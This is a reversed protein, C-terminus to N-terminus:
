HPLSKWYIQPDALFTSQFAGLLIPKKWSAPPAFTYKTAVDHGRSRMLSLWHSKRRIESSLVQWALNPDSGARPAIRSALRMGHWVLYRKIGLPHQRCERHMLELFESIRDLPYGSKKFLLATYTRLEADALDSWLALRAQTSDCYRPSRALLLLQCASLNLSQPGLYLWRYPDYLSHRAAVDSREAPRLLSAEVLSQFYRSTLESGTSIPAAVTTSQEFAYWVLVRVVGLSQVILTLDSDWDTLTPQADVCKV